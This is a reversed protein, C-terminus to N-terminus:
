AQQVDSLDCAKTKLNINKVVWSGMFTISDIPEYTQRRLRKKECHSIITVQCGNTNPGSNAQM